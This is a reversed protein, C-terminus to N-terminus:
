APPSATAWRTRMSVHTRLEQHTEAHLGALAGLPTAAMTGGILAKHVKDGTQIGAALYRMYEKKGRLGGASPYRGAVSERFITLDPSVGM